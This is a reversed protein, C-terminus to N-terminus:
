AVEGQSLREKHCETLLNRILFYNWIWMTMFGLAVLRMVGCVYCMEGKLNEDM